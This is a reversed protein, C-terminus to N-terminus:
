SEDTCWHITWARSLESFPLGFYPTDHVFNQGLELDYNCTM